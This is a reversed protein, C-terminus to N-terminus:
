GAQLAFLRVVAAQDRTPGRGASRGIGGSTCLGTAPDRAERWVRELYQDLVAAARPRLEGDEDRLPRAILELNEAPPRDWLLEAPALDDERPAPGAEPAAAISAYREIGTALFLQGALEARRPGESVVEFTRKARHLWLSDATPPELQAHAQLAAVVVAANDDSSVADTGPYDAYGDGWRYLELTDALDDLSPPMPNPGTPPPDLRDLDLRAALVEALPRLPCIGAADGPGDMVLLQGGGRRLTSSRCLDDWAVRARAEPGTVGTADVPRRRRRRLVGRPQNREEGPVM